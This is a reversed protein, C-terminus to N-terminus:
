IVCRELLEAFDTKKVVQNEQERGAFEDVVKLTTNTPKLEDVAKAPQTPTVEAENNDVKFRKESLLLAILVM